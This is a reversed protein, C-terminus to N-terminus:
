QQVSSGAEFMSKLGVCLWRDVQNGVTACLVSFLLLMLQQLM